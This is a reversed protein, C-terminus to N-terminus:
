PAAMEPLRAWAISRKCHDLDLQGMAVLYGQAYCLWREAKDGTVGGAIVQRLVWHQHAFGRGENSQRPAPLEGRARFAWWQLTSRAAKRADIM